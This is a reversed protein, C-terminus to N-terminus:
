FYVKQVRYLKEYRRDKAKRRRRNVMIIINIGYDQVRFGFFYYVGACDFM